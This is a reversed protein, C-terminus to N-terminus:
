YMLDDIEKLQEGSLPRAAGMLSAILTMKAAAELVEMRDFATLLDKGLCIIGHNELLIVNPNATTPQQNSTHTLDRGTLDRGSGVAATAAAALEKTGMLAYPALVPIGLVARAEAILTCDISKRMATFGTAIPPHAHVIANVDPRKKYIALHMASEISPKLEPTLNEGDYTLMGVQKGRILGKDLASPTIFIGQQLRVSINGGSATTLGRNYLRRMFRAVEKRIEKLEKETIAMTKMKKKITKESM